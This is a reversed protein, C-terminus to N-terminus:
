NEMVLAGCEPCPRRRVTWGGTPPPVAIPTYSKPRTM